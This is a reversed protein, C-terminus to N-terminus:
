SCVTHLATKAWKHALTEQRMKIFKVSFQASFSAFVIRHGIHLFITEGLLHTLLGKNENIGNRKQEKKKLYVKVKLIYASRYHYHSATGSYTLGDQM